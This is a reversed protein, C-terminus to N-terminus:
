ETTAVLALPLPTDEAGPGAVWHRAVPLGADHPAHLTSGVPLLLWARALKM